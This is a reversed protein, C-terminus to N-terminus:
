EVDAPALVAEAGYKAAARLLFREGYDGPVYIFADDQAAADELMQCRAGPLARLEALPMGGIARRLADLSLWVLGATGPGPAAPGALAGRYARVVVPRLASMGTHGVPLARLVELLPGPVGEPAAQRRDVAHAASAGYCWRGRCVRASQGLHARAIGDIIGAVAGEGEMAGPIPGITEEARTLDRAIGDGLAVGPWELPMFTYGVDARWRDSTGLSLAVAGDQVVVLAIVRLAPGVGGAEHGVSADPVVGGM